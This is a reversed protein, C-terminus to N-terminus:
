DVLKRNNERDIWEQKKQDILQQFRHQYETSRTFEEMVPQLKEFMETGCFITQLNPTGDHNFTISLKEYMSLIDAPTPDGKRTSTQNFKEAVDSITEFFMKGEQEAIQKAMKDLETFFVNPDKLLKDIEVSSGTGIRTLPSYYSKNDQYNILMGEGEHIVQYGEEAVPLQGHHRVRQKVFVNFNKRLLGKTKPLDPLM